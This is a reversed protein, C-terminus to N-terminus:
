REFYENFQKRVSKLFEVVDPRSVTEALDILTRHNATLVNAPADGSVHLLDFLEFEEATNLENTNYKEWLSSSTMEAVLAIAKSRAQAPRKRRGKQIQQDPNDLLYETEKAAARGADTLVYGQKVNGNMWGRYKPLCQLLARNVRAADPFEPYGVLSFKEPFFRFLTVVLNEFTGEIGQTNLFRLAYAALRNLDIGSYCKPEFSDLEDIQIVM